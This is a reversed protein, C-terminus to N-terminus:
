CGDLFPLVAEVLREPASLVITHTEDEIVTLRGDPILRAAKEAWSQPIIPDRSGRVVLTPAAVRPLTREIRHEDMYRLTRWFVRPGAQAWQGFTARPQTSGERRFNVLWRGLQRIGHAAPDVTPGQLVLREVLDPRRAALEAIIQCGFSNGLLHWPRARCDRVMGRPFKRLGQRTSCRRLTTPVVQGPYDPVLVRVHSALAEATPAMHRSSVAAGHALVVPRRNAAPDAGVLSHIRLGAVRDFRSELKTM